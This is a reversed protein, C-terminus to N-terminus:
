KLISMSMSMSIRMAYIHTKEGGATEVTELDLLVVALPEPIGEVEDWDPGPMAVAPLHLGLSIHSPSMMLPCNSYQICSVPFADFKNFAGGTAQYRTSRMKQIVLTAQAPPSATAM